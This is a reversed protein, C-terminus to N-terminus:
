YFAYRGVAQSSPPYSGSFTYALNLKSPTPVNRGLLFCRFSGTLIWGVNIQFLNHEPEHFISSISNEYPSRYTPLRRYMYHSIVADFVQPSRSFSAPKVLPDGLIRGLPFVNARWVGSDQSSPRPHSAESPKPRLPPRKYITRAIHLPFNVVHATTTRSRM